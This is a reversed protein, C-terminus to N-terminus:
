WCERCGSELLGVFGLGNVMILRLTTVQIERRARGSEGVRREHEPSRSDEEVQLERSGQVLDCSHCFFATWFDESSSGRISYCQRVPMRARTAIQFVWGMNCTFDICTYFFGDSTCRNGRQPDPTGHAELYDLRCTDMDGFCECLGYSWDRKGEADLPLNLANRNGGGSVSM